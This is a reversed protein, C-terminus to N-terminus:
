RPAGRSPCSRRRASCRWTRRPRLVVLPHQHQAELHGLLLEHLPQEAGLGLHVGVLHAGAVEVRAVPRAQGIRRAPQRLRRDVDVVRGGEGHELRAGLGPAHLGLVPEVQDHDVVQLEHPPAVRLVPLLLDGLDRARELRQGLLQVHRHHREGLERARDLGALALLGLEGIQALRARELLVGVHDEEEVPGLAVPQLRLVPSRTASTMMPLCRLPGVPLTCTVKMGSYAEKSRRALRSAAARRAAGEPRHGLDDDDPRALAAPGQELHEAAIGGHGDHTDDVHVRPRRAELQGAAEVDRHAGVQALEISSGRRSRIMSTVPLGSTCAAMWRNFGALVSTMPPALALNM